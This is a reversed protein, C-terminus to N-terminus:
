ASATSRTAVWRGLILIAAMLLGPAIGRKALETWAPANAYHSVTFYWFAVFGLSSLLVALVPMALVYAPFNKILEGAPWLVAFQAVATILVIFLVIRMYDASFSPPAAAQYKQFTYGALFILFLGLTLLRAM